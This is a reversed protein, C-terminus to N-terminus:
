PRAAKSDLGFAARVRGLFGAADWGAAALSPDRLVPLFPDIEPEYAPAPTHDLWNGRSARVGNCVRRLEAMAADYDM